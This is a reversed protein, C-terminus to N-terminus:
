PFPFLRYDRASTQPFPLFFTPLRVVTPHHRLLRGDDEDRRCGSFFSGLVCSHTTTMVSLLSSRRLPLLSPLEMCLTVTFRHSKKEGAKRKGGGM